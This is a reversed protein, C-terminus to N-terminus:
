YCLLIGISSIFSIKELRKVVLGNTKKNCEFVFESIKDSYINNLPGLYDNKKHFKLASKHFYISSVREAEILHNQYPRVGDQLLFSLWSKINVNVPVHGAAGIFSSNIQDINEETYTTILIKHNKLKLSEEVIFTTKGSGACAIIAKNKNSQM